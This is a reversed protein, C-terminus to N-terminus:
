YFNTFDKYSIEKRITKEDINAEAEIKYNRLGKPLKLYKYKTGEINPIFVTDLIKKGEEYIKIKIPVEIIDAYPDRKVFFVYLKDPNNSDMINFIDGRLPLLGLFYKERSFDKMISINQIWESPKKSDIDCKCVQNLFNYFDDENKIKKQNLEEILIKFFDYKGSYKYRADALKLWIPLYYYDLTFVNMFQQYKSNKDWFMNLPESVKIDSRNIGHNALIGADLTNTLNFTSLYYNIPKIAVNRINRENLINGIVVKVAQSLSENFRLRYIPFNINKYYMHTYEILFFSDFNPDNVNNSPLKNIHLISMDPSLTAYGNPDYKIMLTTNVEIYGFIEKYIPEIDKILNDIYKQTELPVSSDFKISINSRRYKFNDDEVFFNVESTLENYKLIVKYNGKKLVFPLTLYKLSGNNIGVLFKTSYIMNNNEDYLFIHIEKKLIRAPTREILIPYINYPQKENANMLNGGIVVCSLSITNKIEGQFLGISNIWDTMSINDVKPVITQILDNFEKPTQPNIDAMKNQLEYFFDYKGTILYRIYFLKLWVAKTYELSFANFANYSEPEFLFNYKDFNLGNNVLHEGQNLIIDGPLHKVMPYLNLYYKLGKHNIYRGNNLQMYECVVEKIPHAISEIYRSGPIPINRYQLFKHIYNVTFIEDFNEDIEGQPLKNIILISKNERYGLHENPSYKIKFSTSQIPEGIFKRIIPDITDILKSIYSKSNDPVSNDFEYIVKSNRKQNINPMKDESYYNSSFYNNGIKIFDERVWIECKSSNKNIISGTKIEEGNIQLIFDVQGSNIKNLYIEGKSNTIGLFTKDRDSFVKIGKIPTKTRETVIKLTINYVKKAFAYSTLTSFIIMILFISLIRKM